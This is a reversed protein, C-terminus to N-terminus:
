ANKFKQLASPMVCVPLPYTALEPRVWSDRDRDYVMWSYNEQGLTNVFEFREAPAYAMQFINAGVPFLRAEGSAIGMGNDDTGRYDHWWIGAYRFAGYAQGVDNRLEQAANWNIFTSKVENCTTLSDYFEASCLAHVQVDPGGLGKLNKLMQRRQPNVLQRLYQATATAKTWDVTVDVMQDQGFEDAWDYIVSGDADAFRGQILNLLHYEKTLEMDQRMLFQRRSVEGQVTKLETEIGFARINQVEAAEITSGIAIRDTQFSRVRRKDAGKEKPATGRDSTQILAPSADREEIFVNTTRVPRPIYLGPFGSLFSPKYGLKDVAATMQIASFADNNFIDMTIM